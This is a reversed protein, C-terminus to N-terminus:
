LHPSVFTCIMSPTLSHRSRKWTVWGIAQNIQFPDISYDSRAKMSLQEAITKGVNHTVWESQPRGRLSRQNSDLQPFNRCSLHTWHKELPILNLSIRAHLLHTWHKQASSTSLLLVLPPPTSAPPPCATNIKGEWTQGARDLEPCSLLLKFSVLDVRTLPLWHCEALCLLTWAYFIAMERPPQSM